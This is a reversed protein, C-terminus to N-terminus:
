TKPIVKTLIYKSLISKKKEIITSPYKSSNFNKSSSEFSKDKRSKVQIISSSNNSHILGSNTIIKIESKNRDSKLSSVESILKSTPERIVRETKNRSTLENIKTEIIERIHEAEMTYKESLRKSIDDIDEYNLDINEEFTEGYKSLTICINILNNHEFDGQEDLEYPDKNYGDLQETM